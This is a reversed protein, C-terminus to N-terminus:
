QLNSAESISHGDMASVGLRRQKNVLTPPHDMSVRYSFYGGQSDTGSPTCSHLSKIGHSRPSGHAPDRSIKKNFSQLPHHLVYHLDDKLGIVFTARILQIGAVNNVMFKQFNTFIMLLFQLIDKNVLDLNMLDM